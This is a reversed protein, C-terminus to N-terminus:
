PLFTPDIILELCSQVEVSSAAKLESIETERRSVHFRAWEVEQELETNIKQIDILDQEKRALEQDKQRLAEEIQANRFQALERDRFFDSLNGISFWILLILAIGIGGVIKWNIPRHGYMSPIFNLGFM